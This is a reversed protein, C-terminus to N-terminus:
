SKLVPNTPGNSVGLGTWIFVVLATPLAGPRQVPLFRTDSWLSVSKVFKSYCICQQICNCPQSRGLNKEPLKMWAPKEARPRTRLVMLNLDHPSLFLPGWESVQDYIVHIDLISMTHTNPHTWESTLNMFSTCLLSKHPDCECTYRM